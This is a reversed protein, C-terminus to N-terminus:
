FSYFLIAKMTELKFFGLKYQTPVFIRPTKEISPMQYTKMECSFNLMRFLSM